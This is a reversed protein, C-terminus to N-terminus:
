SNIAKRVVWAIGSFIMFGIGVVGRIMGRRASWSGPTYSSGSSNDSCEPCPDGEKIGNGSQFEAGCGDCRLIWVGEPQGPSQIRSFNGPLQNLVTPSPPPRTFAPAHFPPMVGHHGGPASATANADDGSDQGPKPGVAFGDSFGGASLTPDDQPLIAQTNPPEVPLKHSPPTFGQVSPIDDNASHQHEEIWEHDAACFGKLPYQTVTGDVRLFVLPDEVRVFEAVIKHGALDTWTRSFGDNGGPGSDPTRTAPFPGSNDAGRDLNSAENTRNAEQLKTRVIAKDTPSLETYPVMKIGDDTRIRVQRGDFDEYEGKFPSQGVPRWTRASVPNGCTLVLLFVAILSLFKKSRM